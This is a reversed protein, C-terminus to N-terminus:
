AGALLEDWTNVDLLKETLAELRPLDTIAGLAAEQEASPPGAFKKRGLHRLSDRLGERMGQERGRRLLAQYTTSEEMESVGSLLRGVLAEDFRLGMLLSTASWLKAALPVVSWGTARGVSVREAM